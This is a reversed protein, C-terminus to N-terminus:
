LLVSYKPRKAKTIYSNDCVVEVEEIENQKVIKKAFDFWSLIETDCYHKIGYLTNIDEGTGELPPTNISQQFGIQKKSNEILMLIYKVLNETDTPCGIQNDVVRIEQGEKAKEVITKYFNKGFEKSYLWSTRIIFYATLLEQICQEGKLKSKGYENIPNPKDTVTYPTGKEGDFVYDTSIHILTTQYEKCAVAIKKVGEANVLFAKGPEEEAKEVNTYAACNICYDPQHKKFVEAISAENTINLEESTCFIFVANEYEKKYKQITLGLQGNAGTVLITVKKQEEISRGQEVCAQESHCIEPKLDSM